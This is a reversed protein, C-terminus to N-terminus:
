MTSNGHLVQLKYGEGEILREVRFKTWPWPMRAYYKAVYCIVLLVVQISNTHM